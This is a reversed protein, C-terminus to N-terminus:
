STGQSRRSGLRAMAPVAAEIAVRDAEDLSELARGIVHAENRVIMCLCLTM